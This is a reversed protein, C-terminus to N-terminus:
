GLFTYRHMRWQTRPSAGTAERLRQARTADIELDERPHLFPYPEGSRAEEAAYWDLAKRLDPRAQDFAVWDTAGLVGRYEFGGIALGETRAMGYQRSVQLLVEAGAALFERAGALVRRRWGLGDDGGSTPPNAILFGTSGRLGALVSADQGPLPAYSDSVLFGTRDAVGNLEANTRATTVERADLELGLVFDVGPQTAAAVALVGSGSGWDIGSGQLLKPHRDITTLCLRSAPTISPKGPTAVIRLSAGGPREISTPEDTM